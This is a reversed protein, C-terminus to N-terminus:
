RGSDISQEKQKIAALLQAYGKDNIVRNFQNRYNGVLSIQDIAVDYVKWTGDSQKLRYNVSVPEGGGSQISTYVQAYSGDQTERLYSIKQGKYSEIKGMYSAELLATFARVFDARQAPTLTRWHYGLSSKAMDSFDFRPAIVERLKQRRASTASKYSPDTVIALVQRVTEKVAAM